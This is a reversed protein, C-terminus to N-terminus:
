KAGRYFRGLFRLLQCQAVMLKVKLDSYPRFESGNAFRWFVLDAERPPRGHLFERLFPRNWPKAGIPHHMLRMGHTFSMAEPGIPAVPVGTTMAALNFSDQNNSQIMYTRDHVRFVNMDGSFPELITFARNWDDIFANHERKWGLFGSNYFGDYHNTIELGAEQAAAAWRRRIPHRRDFTWLVDGCIGVGMEVWEGYFSMRNNIVIDSDFFFYESAEPALVKCVHEFWKPKEHVMHKTGDLRVLEVPLGSATIFSQGNTSPQLAPLWDPLDGRYGVIVKDVYTGFHVVSNLLASLGLFYEREALTTLIKM